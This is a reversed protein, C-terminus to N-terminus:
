SLNVTLIENTKFRSPKMRTSQNVFYNKLTLRVNHHRSPKRYYPKGQHMGDFHYIGFTSNFKAIVATDNTKLELSPSTCKCGLLKLQATGEDSLQRKFYSVSGHAKSEQRLHFGLDAELRQMHRDVAEFFESLCTPPVGFGLFDNLKPLQQMPMITL